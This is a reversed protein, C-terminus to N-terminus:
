KGALVVAVKEVELDFRRPVIVVGIILESKKGVEGEAKRGIHGRRVRARNHSAQVTREQAGPHQAAPPASHATRSQSGPPWGDVAPRLAPVYAHCACPVGDAAHAAVQPVCRVNRTPALTHQLPVHVGNCPIVIAPTGGAAFSASASLPPPSPPSPPPRTHAKHVGSAKQRGGEYNQHGSAIRGRVAPIETSPWQLQYVPWHSALVPLVHKNLGTSIPEPRAAAIGHAEEGCQAQRALRRKSCCAKGERVQGAKRREDFGM